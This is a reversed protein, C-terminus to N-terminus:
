FGLLDKMTYVGKKGALWTAAKVAGVAFGSRNHATHKIEITDVESAYYVTHTGPVNEKRISHIMLENNATKNGEFQNEESVIENKWANKRKLARMINEATTIATGSPADLKQTHHIEDMFVEYENYSNMMEALQHNIHFFLNVGISFNTAYFIAGNKKTCEKEVEEFHEYWATTGVVVPTGAEFCKKINSVVTDPTSFEIAVDAKKLNDITLDELNDINVKLVITHGQSMAIKEIEKGMKGYGLIAIRM